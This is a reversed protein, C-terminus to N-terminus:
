TRCHFDLNELPLDIAELPYPVQMSAMSPLPLTTHLAESTKYKINLAAIQTPLNKNGLLIPTRFIVEKEL